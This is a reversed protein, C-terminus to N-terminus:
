RVVSLSVDNGGDVTPTRFFVPETSITHQKLPVSDGLVHYPPIPMPKSQDGLVMFSRYSVQVRGDGLVKLVQFSCKDCITNYNSHDPIWDGESVEAFWTKWPGYSWGWDRVEIKIRVRRTLPTRVNWPGLKVMALTDGRLVIVAGKDFTSAVLKGSFSQLVDMTRADIVAM